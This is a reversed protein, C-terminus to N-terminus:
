ITFCGQKGDIEDKERSVLGYPTLQYIVDALETIFRRDHSVAVLPGPFGALAQRIIPNSLPSMNRTPEDLVLMEDRELILRALILKAQSGGSLAAIPGTMEAATFNLSGLLSRIATLEDRRGSSRLFYIPSAQGEEWLSRYDQPMYGVRLGRAALAARLQNLLTTKGVGNSGIIVAHVPGTMTLAVDRALTRGGAQLVPISLRVVPKGAPWPPADFRMGIGEEPEIRAATVAADLHRQQVKLTKMKKKLLRGGAPDARTITAQRYAVKQTLQDLKDQKRRQQDLQKDAIGNTRDIMHLRDAVYRDYGEAALTCVPVTKRQRQEIHMIRNATRALLVEDHSVYMVPQRCGLLFSELWVLATLDLDNTPEDLLLIDCDTLLLGLLHTKIKEGGSMVALPRDLLDEGLGLQALYRYLAPSPADDAGLTRIYGRATQAEDAPAIVQPMYGIRGDAVVQGQCGAYPCVGALCRLLTSKGDGEEGIVAMRDGDQLTFSLGDVLVRGGVTITLGSAKLL